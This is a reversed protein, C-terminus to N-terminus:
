DATVGTHCMGARDRSARDTHADDASDNATQEAIRIDIPRRRRISRDAALSRAAAVDRAHVYSGALRRDICFHRGDSHVYVLPRRDICIRRSGFCRDLSYV